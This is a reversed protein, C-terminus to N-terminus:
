GIVRVTSLVDGFQTLFDLRRRRVGLVYDSDVPASVFESASSQSEGYNLVRKFHIVYLSPIYCHQMQATIRWVFNETPV